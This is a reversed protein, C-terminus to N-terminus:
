KNNRVLYQGVVNDIKKTIYEDKDQIMKLLRRNYQQWTNNRGEMSPFMDVHQPNDKIWNMIQLTYKEKNNGNLFDYTKRLLLLTQYIDSKQIIEKYNTRDAKYQKLLTGLESIYANLELKSFYYSFIKPLNNTELDLTYYKNDFNNDINTQGKQIYMNILQTAHTLEHQLALQLQMHDKLVSSGNIYITINDVKGNNNDSLMTGNRDFAAYTDNNDFYLIIEVNEINNINLEMLKKEDINFTTYIKGKYMQSLKDTLQLKNYKKNQLIIKNIKEVVTNGIYSILKELGSVYGGYEKLLENYIINYQSENVIIRM